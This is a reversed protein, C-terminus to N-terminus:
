KVYGGEISSITELMIVASDDFSEIINLVKKKSKRRTIIFLIRRPVEKGEGVMETVGYGKKRLLKALTRGKEADCIATINNKGLAVKQELVNGLYSGIGNGLAYFLVKLPDDIIGVLVTSATIVWIISAIFLLLAGLVKKGDAVVILRFTGLTTELTKAVLILLYLIPGSFAM